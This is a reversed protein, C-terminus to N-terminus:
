HLYIGLMKRFQFFVADGWLSKQLIRTKIDVCSGIIQCFRKLFPAHAPLSDPGVVGTKLMRGSLRHPSVGIGAPYCSGVSDYFGHPRVIVFLFVIQFYCETRRPISEATIKGILFGPMHGEFSYRVVDPSRLFDGVKEKMVIASFFHASACWSM